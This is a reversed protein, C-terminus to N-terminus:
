AKESKDIERRWCWFPGDMEKWVAWEPVQEIELWRLFLISYSLGLLDAESRWKSAILVYEVVSILM